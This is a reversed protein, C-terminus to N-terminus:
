LQTLEMLESYIPTTASVMKLTLHLIKLLQQVTGHIHKKENPEYKVNM